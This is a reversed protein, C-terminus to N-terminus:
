KSIMAIGTNTADGHFSILSYHHQFHSPAFHIPQEVLAVVALMRPLLKGDVFGSSWDKDGCHDAIHLTAQPKAPAKKHGPGTSCLLLYQV